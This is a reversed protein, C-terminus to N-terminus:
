CCPLACAKVEELLKRYRQVEELARNLRAGRSQLSDEAARQGKENEVARETAQRLATDRAALQGKLNDVQKQLRSLNGELAKNAKSSSSRDSKLCRLAETVERLESTKLRVQAQAADLDKELAQM